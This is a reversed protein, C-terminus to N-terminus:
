HNSAIRDLTKILIIHIKAFHPNAVVFGPNKHAFHPIPNM